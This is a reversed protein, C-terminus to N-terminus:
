FVNSLPEVYRFAEMANFHADNTILRWETTDTPNLIRLPIHCDNQLKELWHAKFHTGYLYVQSIMYNPIDLIEPRQIEEVVSNFLSLADDENLQDIAQLSNAYPRFTYNLFNVEDNIIVEYGRESFNVLMSQGMINPFFRRFLEDVTFCNLGINEIPFRAEIAVAKVFNIFARNLAVAMIQEISNNYRSYEPEYIVYDDADSTLIHNLESKTLASYASKPVASDVWIKKVLSFKGSLLFRVSDIEIENAEALANLHNAIQM